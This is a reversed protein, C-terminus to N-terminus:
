QNNEKKLDLNEKENDLIYKSIEIEDKFTPENNQKRFDNLKNFKKDKAALIGLGFSLASASVGGAVAAVTKGSNNNNERRVERASSFNFPLLALLSSLVAIKKSKM